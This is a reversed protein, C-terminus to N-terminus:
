DPTAAPWRPTVAYRHRLRCQRPPRSSSLPLRPLRPGLHWQSSWRHRSSRNALPAGPLRPAGAHAPRELCLAVRAAGTRRRLAAKIMFPWIRCRLPTPPQGQRHQTATTRSQDPAAALPDRCSRVSMGLHTSCLCATSGITCQSHGPRWRRSAGSSLRAGVRRESRRGPGRYPDVSSHLVPRDSVNFRGGLMEFDVECGSTRTKSPRRPLEGYPRAGRDCAPPPREGRPHGHTVM